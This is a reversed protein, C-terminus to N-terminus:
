CCSIGTVRSLTKCTEEGGWVIQFANEAPELHQPPVLFDAGRFLYSHSTLHKFTGTRQSQLNLYFKYDAERRYPFLGDQVVTFTKRPVDTLGQTFCNIRLGQEENIFICSVPHFWHSEIM